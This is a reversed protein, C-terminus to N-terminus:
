RRVDVTGALTLEIRAPSTFKCCSPIRPYGHARRAGLAYGRRFRQAVGFGRKRKREPRVSRWPKCTKIPQVVMKASAPANPGYFWVHELLRFRLERAASKAKGDFAEVINKWTPESSAICASKTRSASARLLALSMTNVRTVEKRSVKGGVDFAAHAGYCGDAACASSTNNRTMSKAVPDKEAEHM